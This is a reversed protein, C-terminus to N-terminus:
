FFGFAQDNRLSFSHLQDPCLYCKYELLFKRMRPDNVSFRHYTLHQRGQSKVTEWPPVM